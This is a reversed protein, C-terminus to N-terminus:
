EAGHNGTLVYEVIRDALAFPEDDIAGNIALDIACLRLKRLEEPDIEPLAANGSGGGGTGGNVRATQEAATKGMAADTIREADAGPHAPDPRVRRLEEATAVVVWERIYGLTDRIFKFKYPAELGGLDRTVKDKLEPPILLVNHRGNTPAPIALYVIDRGDIKIVTGEAQPMLTVAPAQKAPATESM